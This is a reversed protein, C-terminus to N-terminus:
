QVRAWKSMGLAAGQVSNEDLQLINNNPVTLAQRGSKLSFDPQTSKPLGAWGIYVKSGSVSGTIVASWSPNSPSSEAYGVIRNNKQTLYYRAGSLDKWVGSLNLQTPLLLVAGQQEVLPYSPTQTQLTWDSENLPGTHTEESLKNDPMVGATLTGSAASNGKPVDYWDMILQNDANRKGIAVQAWAPSNTSSEGYWYVTEGSQRLYYRGNSGGKWVGTLNALLQPEPTALPTPVPTPMATPVPTPLPTPVPLSSPAPTAQSSPAASTPPSATPMTTSGSGTLPTVGTQTTPVNGAACASLTLLSLSFLSLRKTLMM